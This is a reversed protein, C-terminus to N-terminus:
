IHLLEVRSEALVGVFREILKPILELGLPSGSIDIFGLYVSIEWTFLGIINGGEQEFVSVFV